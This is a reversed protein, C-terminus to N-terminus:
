FGFEALLDDVLDQKDVDDDGKEVVDRLLETKQQINEPSADKRINLIVLAEILWDRMKNLDSIMVEMKQRAVDQFTQTAIIDFIDNKMEEFSDEIEKRLVPDEIKANKVKDDLSDAMDSIADAKDLVEGATKKMLDVIGLAKDVLYPAQNGASTLPVEVTKMNVVMENIKGTLEQLMGEANIDTTELDFEGRLIADTIEILSGLGKDMGSQIDSM